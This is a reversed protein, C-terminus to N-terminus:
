PTNEGAARRDFDLTRRGQHAALAGLADRCVEAVWKRFLSDPVLEVADLLFILM